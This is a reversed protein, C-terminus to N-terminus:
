TGLYKIISPRESISNYQNGYFSKETNILQISPKEYIQSAILGCKPCVMESDTRILKGGCERCNTRMENM